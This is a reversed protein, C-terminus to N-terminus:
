SPYATVDTAKVSAWVTAGEVLRLEAVAAPTVDAVLDLAGHLRVRVHEGLLDLGVVQLQWRNRASSRPSEVGLTVSSPRVVVFVPGAVADAVTIAAGGELRVREGDGTGRLLNVGLLEAVYRTRPRTTVEALTGSQTLRGGELVAVRDALALADLPDHTVLVTTGGFEGLHRRLDRRVVARTAVDLAALPEDLLLLRPDTALARALAVRQAQGGSLSAPRSRTHESLGVRELWASATTNADSRAVGRARPGFAVNDLVSLHPFLLYDQFVVGVPRAEPPVRVRNAPDELVVGDLDIRGRELPQLGALARLVTTKGAGNPGLVALVEGDAVGVAVDLDLAGLRLALQAELSM